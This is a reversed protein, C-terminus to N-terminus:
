ISREESLAYLPMAFGEFASSALVKVQEIVQANAGPPAQFAPLPQGAVAAEFATKTMSAAYPNCHKTWLREVVTKFVTSFKKPSKVM